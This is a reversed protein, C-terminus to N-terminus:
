RIITLSSALPKDFSKVELVYYYKGEPLLGDEYTGDFINSEPQQYRITSFVINGWRNYIKLVNDPHNELGDFILHKNKDNSSPTIVSIPKFISIDFYKLNILFNSDISCESDDIIELFYPQPSLNEIDYLNGLSDAIIFEFPPTGGEVNLQIGGDDCLYCTASDSVISFIIQDPELILISDRFSCDNIDTLDYSYIDSELNTIEFHESGSSWSITQLDSSDLQISGDSAGFCSIQSVVANILPPPFSNIDINEVEYICQNFDSISVAYEGEGINDLSIGSDGTNWNYQLSSDAFVISANSEGACTSTADYSLDPTPYQNITFEIITDCGNSNSITVSYLGESLADVKNSQSSTSWLFSLDQSTLIEAQGNNTSLCISDTKIFDFELNPPSTIEFETEIQNDYADIIVITYSGNSLDALSTTSSEIEVGNADFWTISYPELGGSISVAAIGKNDGFCANNTTQLQIELEDFSCFDSNEVLLERSVLNGNEEIYIVNNFQDIPSTIKFCRDSFSSLDLTILALTDGADLGIAQGLPDFWLIAFTSDNYIESNNIFSGYNFNPNLSIGENALLQLGVQYGAIFMDKSVILALSINETDPSFDTSILEVDQSITIAICFYQLAFLVIYKKM